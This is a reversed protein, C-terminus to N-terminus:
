VLVLGGPSCCAQYSWTISSWCYVVGVSSAGPLLLSICVHMYVCLTFYHHSSKGGIICLSKLTHELTKLWFTSSLSEM